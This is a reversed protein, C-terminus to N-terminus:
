VRHPPLRPPPSPPPSTGRLKVRSAELLAMSELLANPPKYSGEHAVTFLHPPSDDINDHASIILTLFDWTSSVPIDEEKKVATASRTHLETVKPLDSRLALRATEEANMGFDFCFIQSRSPIVSPGEDYPDYKEIYDGLRPKEEVEEAKIGLQNNDVLAEKNDANEAKVQPYLQSHSPHHAPPEYPTFLDQKQNQINYIPNPNNYPFVIRTQYLVYRSRLFLKKNFIFITL